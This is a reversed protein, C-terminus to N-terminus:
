YTSSQAGHIIQSPKVLRGIDSADFTCTLRRFGLAGRVGLEGFEVITSAQAHTHFLSRASKQRGNGATRSHVSSFVNMCVEYVRKRRM